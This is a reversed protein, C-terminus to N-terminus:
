AYHWCGPQVSDLSSGFRCHTARTTEAMAAMTQKEARGRKRCIKEVLGWPPKPGVVIGKNRHHSPQATTMFHDHRCVPHRDGVDEVPEKEAL